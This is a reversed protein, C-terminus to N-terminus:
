VDFTRALFFLSVFISYVNKINQHTTGEYNVIFVIQRTQWFFSRIWPEFLLCGLWELNVKAM